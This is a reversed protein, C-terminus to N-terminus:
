STGTDDGEHRAIQNVDYTTRSSLIRGSIIRIEQTAAFSILRGEGGIAVGPAITIARDSHGNVRVEVLYLCTDLPAVSTVTVELDPIAHLWEEAFALYGRPGISRERTPRHEFECADDVLTAAELQRRQNFLQYYRLILATDSAVLSM